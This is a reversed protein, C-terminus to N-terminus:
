QCLNALPSYYGEVAWGASFIKPRGGRLGESYGM